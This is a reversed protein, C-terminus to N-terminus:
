KEFVPRAVLVGYVNDRDKVYDALSKESVVVQDKSTSAHIFHLQNKKRYALGVHTIDLGEIGSCFAIIDGNKILNEKEETKGESVCKFTIKSIRSEISKMKEVFSPNQALKAYKSANASMFGTKSDFAMDGFDNSVINLYGKSQNDALWESFYHLRSPYQDIIGKRYRIEVLRNQFCRSNAEGAKVCSSLALVNEVFTTCDFENLNIVLREEGEQELTNAVYPIGEFHLAINTIVSSFSSDSLGLSDAFHFVRKLALSDNTDLPTLVTNTNQSKLQTGNGIQSKKGSNSCSVIVMLAFFLATFKKNKMFGFIHSEGSLRLGNPM